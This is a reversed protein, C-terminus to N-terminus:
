TEGKERMARMVGKKKKRGKPNEEQFEKVAQGTIQDFPIYFNNPVERKIVENYTVRVILGLFAGVAVLICIILVTVQDHKENM